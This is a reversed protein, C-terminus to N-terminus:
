GKLLLHPFLNETELPNETKVRRKVLRLFKKVGFDNIIVIIIIIIITKTTHNVLTLCKANNGVPAMILSGWWRSDRVRQLCFKFRRLVQNYLSIRNIANSCWISSKSQPSVVSECFNRFLWNSLQNLKIIWM